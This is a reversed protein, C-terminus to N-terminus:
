DGVLVKMIGFLDVLMINLVDLFFIKLCIQKEFIGKNIGMDWEM